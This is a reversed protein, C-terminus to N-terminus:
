AAGGAAPGRTAGGGPLTGRGGAATPRDAETGGGAGLAKVLYAFFRM